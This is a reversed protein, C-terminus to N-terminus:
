EIARGRRLASPTTGRFRTMTATMHSHNSFGTMAAVQALPMDTTALLREAEDLRKALVFKYPPMGTTERFARLFYSPSLDAVKALQEVSLPQGLHAHIYNEVDRWVKPPLGGRFRPPRLDPLTTYDRLLHTAFVTVLSDLYLPNATEGRLIEDRIFGALTLAKRDVRGKPTPNFEFFDRAFELGPHRDRSGANPRIM